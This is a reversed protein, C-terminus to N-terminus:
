ITGDAPIGATVRQTIEDSDGFRVLVQNLVVDNLVEIGDVAGLAEAFARAHACCREVM